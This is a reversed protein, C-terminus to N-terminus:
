YHCPSMVCNSDKWAEEEDELDSLRTGCYTEVVCWVMANILQNISDNTKALDKILDDGYTDYLYQEIEDEHEFFFKRTETYYIFGGVGAACGPNYVDKIEEVDTFREELADFLRSM